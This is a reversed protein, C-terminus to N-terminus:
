RLFEDVGDVVGKLVFGSKADIFDVLMGDPFIQAAIMGPAKSERLKAFLPTLQELQEDSLTVKIM